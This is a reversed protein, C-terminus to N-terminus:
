PKASVSFSAAPALAEYASRYSMDYGRSMQSASTMSNEVFPDDPSHLQSPMISFSRRGSHFPLYSLHGNPDFEDDGVVEDQYRAEGYQYEAVQHQYQAEAVEYDDTEVVQDEYEDEYEEEYEDAEFDHGDNSEAEDNQEFEQTATDFDDNVSAQDDHDDHDEESDPTADRSRDVPFQALKEPAISFKIPLTPSEEEDESGFGMMSSGPKETEAEPEIKVRSKRSSMRVPKTGSKAHLRRPKKTVSPDWEGDSSLEAPDAIDGREEADERANQRRAPKHKRKYRDRRAKTLKASAEEKLKLSDQLVQDPLKLKLRPENRRAGSQSKRGDPGRTYKGSGVTIGPNELSKKPHELEENWAVVRVVGPDGDPDKRVFGRVKPNPKIHPKTKEPPVMHGEVVLRERMKMLMQTACPGSSGPQLRRVIDDWPIPVQQMHCEYDLFLLLKEMM